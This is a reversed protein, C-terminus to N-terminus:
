GSTNCVTSELVTRFLSGAFEWPREMGRAVLNLPYRTTGGLNQKLPSSAWSHPTHEAREPGIDAVTGPLLAPLSLSAPHFPQNSEARSVAPWVQELCGACCALALSPKHWLEDKEALRTGEKKRRRGPDRIFLYFCRVHWSRNCNRSRSFEARSCTGQWM